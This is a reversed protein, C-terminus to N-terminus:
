KLDKQGTVFIVSPAKCVDKPSTTEPMANKDKKGIFLHKNYVSSTGYYWESVAESCILKDKSEFLTYKKSLSIMRAIPKFIYKLALGACHLYDYSKGIDDYARKVATRRAKECESRSAFVNPRVRVVKLNYKDPPYTELLPRKVLRGVAEIVYWKDEIQTNEPTGWQIIEKEKILLGVHNIQSHTLLKIGNTFINWKKASVCLIDGDKLKTCDLNYDLEKKSM